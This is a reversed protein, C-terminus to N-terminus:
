FESHNTNWSWVLIPYSPKGVLVLLSFALIFYIFWIFCSRGTVLTKYSHSKCNLSEIFQFNALQLALIFYIATKAKPQGYVSRVCLLVTYRSLSHVCCASCMDDTLRLVNEDIIPVHKRLQDENFKRANIHIEM